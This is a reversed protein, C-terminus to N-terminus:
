VKYGYAKVELACLDHYDLHVLLKVPKKAVFRLNPITNKRFEISKGECTVSKIDAVYNQTEASQFLELYGDSVTISPTFIVSYIGEAKNVCFSRETAPAVSVLKKKRDVPNSGSGNGPNDGNGEGEGGGGGGTGDRGSGAGPVGPEVINGEPDNVAVNGDGEQGMRSSSPTRPPVVRLEVHKIENSVAEQKEEPKNKGDENDFALYQGLNPDITETIDDAKLKDLCDKIFALLEKDIARAHSKNEARDIEWKTHQPNELNRLHSNLKEGEVYLVGAFPIVSSIYGRDTIKMGTKRVMACRHHFDPHIMLRLVVDGLGGIDKRYEPAKEHDATLVAYYKDANEVFNEKYRVMLDPLQESSIVTNDVKVILDGHHVAYLFGDLISAILDDEWGNDCNFALIFIDTGTSGPARVFGPELSFQEYVPSSKENGYFGVGQTIEEDDHKFSTLRAVGQSAQEGDINSTSYFVTRFDSCAFPAFKGIGFSGGNTGGKDSAGQSKTLNCWPSNYAEHSGTLGSTNFDSIRMCRVTSKNVIDLAKKFFKKAKDSNQRSWFDLARAFADKLDVIGPISATPIEFTKFEVVTAEDAHCRADLSNQCIERALSKIPTGKFTEVGADAIGNIPGNNNSPFEWKIM